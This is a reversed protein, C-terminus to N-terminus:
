KRFGSGLIPSRGRIGNGLPTELHRFSLESLLVTAFLSVLAFAFPHREFSVESFQGVKLIAKMIPLHFLYFGYSIVGLRRMPVAELIRAVWVSRSVGLVIGALLLPVFPFNYRGGPFQFIDDISTALIALLIGVSIVVLADCWKARFFPFKWDIAAIIVGLGFLILHSLLSHELCIPDGGVWAQSWPTTPEISRLWVVALQGAVATVVTAIIISRAKLNGSWKLVGLLVGFFAYFQVIVALAWFPPNISYLTQPSLNHLFFLHVLVDKLESKSQWSRDLMALVGLCVLYAPLIRGARNRIYSFLSPLTCNLSHQQSQEYRLQRLGGPMISDERVEGSPKRREAVSTPPMRHTAGESDQGWEESAQPSPSSSLLSVSLSAFWPRALLLGSLIMFLAVGTNGNELLRGFDIPGLQGSVGTLQHWHVGFVALCAFARLGDMGIMPKNM